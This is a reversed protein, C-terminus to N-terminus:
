PRQGGTRIEIEVEGDMCGSVFKLSPMQANLEKKLKVASAMCVDLNHYDRDQSYMECELDGVACVLIFAKFILFNTGCVM